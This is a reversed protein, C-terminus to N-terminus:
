ETVIAATTQSSQQARALTSADSSSGAWRACHCSHFCRSSARAISAVDGTSRRGGILSSGGDSTRIRSEKAATTEVQRIRPVTSNTKRAIKTRPTSDPPRCSVSGPSPASGPSSPGSNARCVRSYSKSSPRFGPLVEDGDLVGAEGLEVCDDPSTFAKAKRREADIYWVLTVGARFYEKLKRDMESRPNGPSLIEIALDPVVAFVRDRPVKRKPFREWRIFSVAPARIRDPLIRLVGGALSVGAAHKDLYVNLKHVILGALVSEYLGIAKEVLVGDLLECTVGECDGIRVVDEETAAGPAPTLRIRDLPVGGVTRMLEALNREM